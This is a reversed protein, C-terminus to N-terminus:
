EGTVDGLVPKKWVAVLYDDEDDEDDGGYGSSGRVLFDEAEAAAEAAEDELDAVDEIYAEGFVGEEVIDGDSVGLVEVLKEAFQVHRSAKLSSTSDTTPLLVTSSPTSLGVVSRVDESIVSSLVEDMVRKVNEPVVNCVEVLTMKESASHFGDDDSENDKIGEDAAYSYYQYELVEAFDETTTDPEDQVDELQCRDDDDDDDDSAVEDTIFDAVSSLSGGPVGTLIANIGLALTVGLDQFLAKVETSLPSPEAENVSANETAIELISSVETSLANLRAILNHQKVDDVAAQIIVQLNNSLATLGNVVDVAPELPIKNSSPVEGVAAVEDDNLTDDSNGVEDDYSDKLSTLGLMDLYPTETTAGEVFTLSASAQLSPKVYTVNELTSIPTPTTMVRNVITTTKPLSNFQSTVEDIYNDLYLSSLIKKIDFTAPQKESAIKAVSSAKENDVDDTLTESRELTVSERVGPRSKTIKIKMTGDALEPDPIPTVLKPESTVRKFLYWETP